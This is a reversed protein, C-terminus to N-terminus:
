NSKGYKKGIRGRKRILKNNRILNEVYQWEPISLLKSIFIYILLFVASSVTIWILLNTLQSGFNFISIIKLSLYSLFASFLAAFIIKNLSYFKGVLDRNRKKFFYLMLFFQVVAAISVSLPLALISYNIGKLGFVTSTIGSFLSKKDILWVFYYALSINLGVSFLSIKVPTKTDQVSFFSKALFPISASAFIALSFIGLSASTLQLQQYGFYNKGVYATGLILSVIQKRLIFILLGAPLVLFILSSFSKSFNEKFKNSDRRAFNRSLSPFIAQALSAGILGLPLSQLNNAFNFVSLSGQPLISAIATLVVLNLQYATAGITRPVILRFMKGLGSLNFKPLSFFSFRLKLFSPLQIFLHSFAGLVVGYALGKLGFLPVFVLIGFIIGLNYFIPALAYALFFNFYQLISSVVASLGLFIPSLLLIRTLTVTEKQQILSFGPTILKILVPALFLFAVSLSSLIALVIYLTSNTLKRAEERDKKYVESFIPIFVAAIGGMILISYIFDPIRFAAFYIDTQSKSFFNALLNDRFLGLLRSLLGSVALLLSASFITKTKLHIM